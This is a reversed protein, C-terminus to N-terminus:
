NLTYDKTLLQDKRKTSFYGRANRRSNQWRSLTGKKKNKEKEHGIRVKKLPQDRLFTSLPYLGLHISVYGSNPILFLHNLTYFKSLRWYAASLHSRWFHALRLPGLTTSISTNCHSIYWTTRYRGLRRNKRHEWVGKLIYRPWWGPWQYPQFAQFLNLALSTLYPLTFYTLNLWFM